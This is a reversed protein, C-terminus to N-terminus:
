LVEKSKKYEIFGYDKLNKIYQTLRPYLPEADEGFNESVKQGIDYITREGDILPWIFSGMKELHIQSVKPKKLLKQAVRNFLGKNEVYITVNKEEDMDWRYTEVHLPIYDLFNNKKTKSKSVDHKLNKNKDMNNRISKYINLNRNQSQLSKM